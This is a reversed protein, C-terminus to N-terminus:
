FRQCVSCPPPPLIPEEQKWVAPFSQLSTYQVKSMARLSRFSLHTTTWSDYDEWLSTVLPSYLFRYLSTHQQVGRDTRQFLSHFMSAASKVGRQHSSYYARTCPQWATPGLCALTAALSRMYNLLCSHWTRDLLPHTLVIHVHTPKQVPLNWTTWLLSYRLNM